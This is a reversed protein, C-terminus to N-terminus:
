LNALIREFIEDETGIGNINVLLNKDKYYEVLPETQQRYVELRKRIVEESDDERKILNGGCLKCVLPSDKKSFDSLKFVRHCSDCVVRNTVRRIIEDEDVVINIVKDINLKLDTLLDDFKKAQELTRPFGDMLFGNKFRDSMLEDKIMEIILDDPVLKGSKVFDQAKKGLDSGKNIESRLIDGTSIHPISFKESIKKAQTGKGVGPAGLLILRM